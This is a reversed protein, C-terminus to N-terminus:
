RGGRVASPHANAGTDYLLHPPASTVVPLGHCDPPNDANLRPLNQPYRYPARGGGLSIVTNANRYTGGMAYGGLFARGLKGNETAGGLACGIIPSYHELLSIL